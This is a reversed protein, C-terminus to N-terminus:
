ETKKEEKGKMEQLRTNIDTLQEELWSKRLELSEQVDVDKASLARWGYGGGRHPRGGGCPGLGRGSRGTGFPGTRDMGPM